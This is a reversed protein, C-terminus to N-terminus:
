EASARFIVQGSAPEAQLDAVAQPTFDDLAVVGIDLRGAPQGRREPYLITGCSALLFASATVLTGAVRLRSRSARLPHM